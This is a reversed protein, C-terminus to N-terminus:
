KKSRKVAKPVLNYHKNMESWAKDEVSEEIVKIDLYEKIAYSDGLLREVLRNTRDGYATSTQKDLEKKLDNILGDFYDHMIALEQRDVYDTVRLWKRLFKKM